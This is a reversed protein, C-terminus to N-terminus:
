VHYQGIVAIRRRKTVHCGNHRRVAGNLLGAGIPLMTALPSRQGIPVHRGNNVHCGNCRRVVGNLSGASIPSM